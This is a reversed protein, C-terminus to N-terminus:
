LKGGNAALAAIDGAEIYYEAYRTMTGDAHEIKQMKTRIPLSHRTRLYHVVQPLSYLGWDAVATFRTVREGAMLADLLLDSKCAIATLKEVFPPVEPATKSAPKQLFTVTM